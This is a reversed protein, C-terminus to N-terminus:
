PACALPLMIAQQSASCLTHGHANRIEMHTANACLSDATSLCPLPPHDQRGPVLFRMAAQREGAHQGMGEYTGIPASMRPMVARKVPHLRAAGLRQHDDM